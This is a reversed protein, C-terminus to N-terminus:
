KIRHLKHEAIARQVWELIAPGYDYDGLDGLEDPDLPGAAGLIEGMSTSEIAYVKGNEHQWFGKM